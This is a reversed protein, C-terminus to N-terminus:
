ILMTCLRAELRRPSYGPLGDGNEATRPFDRLSVRRAKAAVLRHIGIRIDAVVRAFLVGGVDTARTLDPGVFLALSRVEARRHDFDREGIGESVAIPTELARAGAAVVVRGELADVLRVDGIRVR